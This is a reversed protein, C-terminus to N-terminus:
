KVRCQSVFEQFKRKFEQKDFKQAHVRITEPRFTQELAEFKVIADNLASPTQEDFFLGTVNEVVTELAGGRRFAIVPRGSAMAELPVIGFDEIGPFILAKCRSYHDCMVSFSQRGMITITPGATRRLEPLQEGDGIVVLKRGTENFAKIAIDTRKYNVLQGVMLYFDHVGDTIAFDDCSVPPHIVTATRRYHKEIRGAVFRSNAVFHDVRAASVYDWMRLYHILPPMLLRKIAGSGDRYDHYMDWVYRMPTHCYCIHLADPRTIVGKAPGSESSIVLDYERLDLQELALPMLPLYNQYKKTAKPLKDIFTVSVNHQRITPSIAAPDYVHTFIDAQPFLECMAELVKEGGRM